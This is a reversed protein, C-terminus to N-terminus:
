TQEEGDERQSIMYSLALLSDSFHVSEVVVDAGPFSVEYNTFNWIGQVGAAVLREGMVQAASKPVTLLGVSAPHEALFAELTDAHYVPVGAIQTGVTGEQVDFAALLQFGNNSFKFNEILARGLNGAGLVVITHGRNIGLIEGIQEKLVDVKYGYGQQGFGGFCFLDQRIQSATLRHIEWPRQFLDARDGEASARFSPPLLPAPPPDSRHFGKREAEHM